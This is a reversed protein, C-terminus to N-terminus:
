HCVARLSTYNMTWDVTLTGIYQTGKSGKIVYHFVDVFLWTGDTQINNDQKDIQKISFVEGTTESVAEGSSETKCWVWIGKLFHGVHHVTVSIDLLDAQVGDCYVPETYTNTWYESWSGTQNNGKPNQASIQTLIGLFLCLLLFTKTKM